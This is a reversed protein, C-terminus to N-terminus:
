FVKEEFHHMLFVHCHLISDSYQKINILKKMEFPGALRAPGFSIFFNISILLLLIRIRNEMTM